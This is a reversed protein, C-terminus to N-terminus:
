SGAVESAVLYGKAISMIARAGNENLYIKRTTAGVKRAASGVPHLIRFFSFQPEFSQPFTKIEVINDSPDNMSFRANAGKPLEISATVHLIHFIGHGEIHVPLFELEPFSALKNKISESVALANPNFLVPTVGSEPRYLKLSQTHWSGALPAPVCLREDDWLGAEDDFWAVAFNGDPTSAPHLEFVAM